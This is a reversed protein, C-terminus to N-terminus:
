SIYDTCIVALDTSTKVETRKAFLSDAEDFLLIMGVQLVVLLEELAPEDVRVRPRPVARDGRDLEGLGAVARDV